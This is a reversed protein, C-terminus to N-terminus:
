PDDEAASQPRQADLWGQLILVAAVQDIVQRRRKRSVDGELLAREAAVTTLREDWYIIPLTTAHELAAGFTRTALARPGESGDMNLPLGIVFRDVGYKKALEHVADLDQRPGRRQLTALGQGTFGLEDSVALGITKTGLDLALARMTPAFQLLSHLRGVRHVSTGRKPHKRFSLARFFSPAPKPVPGAIRVRWSAHRRGMPSVRSRM